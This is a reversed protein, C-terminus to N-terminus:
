LAIGEVLADIDVEDKDVKLTAEGFMMQLEAQHHPFISLSEYTVEGQPMQVVLTSSGPHGAMWERFKPWNDSNPMAPLVLRLKTHYDQTHLWEPEDEHETKTVDARHETKTVNDDNLSMEVQRREAVDGLENSNAPVYLEEEDEDYEFDLDELVKADLETTNRDAWFKDIQAVLGDLTGDVFSQKTKDPLELKRHYTIEGDAAQEIEAVSGWRYGEHWDARITPLTLPAGTWDQSIVYSVAPEVIDIVTRTSVDKTVYFELADHITMILTISGRPIRGEDEAKRIAADARVMGIKMYDAAAGQV